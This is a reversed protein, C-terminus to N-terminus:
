LLLLGECHATRVRPHCVGGDARLPPTDGSSRCTSPSRAQRWPCPVKRMGTGELRMFAGRLCGGVRRTPGPQAPPLRTPQSGARWRCRVHCHARMARQVYANAQSVSSLHSLVGIEMAGKAFQVSVGRLMRAATTGTNDSFVHVCAKEPVIQDLAVISM